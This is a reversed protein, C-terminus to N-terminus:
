CRFGLPRVPLKEACMRVRDASHNLRVLRQSPRRRADYAFAPTLDPRVRITSDTNPPRLTTLRSM